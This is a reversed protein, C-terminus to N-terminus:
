IIKWLAELGLIAFSSVEVIINGILDKYNAKREKESVQKLNEEYPSDNQYLFDFDRKWYKLVKEEFNVRLFLYIFCHFAKPTIQSHNVKRNNCLIGEFLYNGSKDFM